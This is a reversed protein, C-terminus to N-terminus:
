LIPTFARLSSATYKKAGAINKPSWRADYLWSRSNVILIPSLLAVGVDASIMRSPLPVATDQVIKECSFRIGVTCTVTKFNQLFFM